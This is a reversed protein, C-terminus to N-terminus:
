HKEEGLGSLVNGLVGVLTEMGTAMLELQEDNPEPADLIALTDDLPVEGYLGQYHALNLALLRACEALQDKSAQQILVDALKYYQEFESLDAM